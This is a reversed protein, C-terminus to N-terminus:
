VTTYISHITRKMLLITPAGAWYGSEFGLPSIVAKGEEPNFLPALKLERGMTQQM